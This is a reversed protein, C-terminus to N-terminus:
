GYKVKNTSPTAETQLYTVVGTDTCTMLFGDVHHVGVFHQVKGHKNRMEKGNEDLRSTFVQWSQTVVGSNIDMRDVAGSIRAVVIEAIPGSGHCKAIHTIQLARDIKGYTKTTVIADQPKEAAM